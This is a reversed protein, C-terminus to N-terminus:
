GVQLVKKLILRILVNFFASLIVYANTIIIIKVTLLRM